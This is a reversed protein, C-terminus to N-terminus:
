SLPAGSKELTGRRLLKHGRGFVSKSFIWVAVPFFFIRHDLYVVFIMWCFRGKEAPKPDLAGMLILFFFALFPYVEVM